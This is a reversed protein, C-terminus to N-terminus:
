VQSLSKKQHSPTECVKRGLSVELQKQDQLYSPNCTHAVLVWCVVDNFTSSSVKHKMTLSQVREALISFLAFINERDVMVWM